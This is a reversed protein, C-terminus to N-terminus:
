LLCFMVYVGKEVLVSSVWYFGVFISKMINVCVGVVYCVVGLVFVVVGGIVIGIIIWKLLCSM